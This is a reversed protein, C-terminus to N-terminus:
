EYCMSTSQRVLYYSLAPLWFFFIQKAFAFFSYSLLPLLHQLASLFIGLLFFVISLFYPLPTTILDLLFPLHLLPCGLLIFQHELLFCCFPNTFSVLLLVFDIYTPALLEKLKIAQSPDPNLYAKSREWPPTPEKKKKLSLDFCFGSKLARELVFVFHLM